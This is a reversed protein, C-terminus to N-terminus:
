SGVVDVQGRVRFAADRPDTGGGLDVFDGERALATGWFDTVLLEDGDRRVSYNSWDVATLDGNPAKVALTGNVEVLQGSLLAAPCAQPGCATSSMVAALVFGVLAASGTKM